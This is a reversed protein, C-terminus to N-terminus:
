LADVGFCYADNSNKPSFSYEGAPLAAEPLLGWSSAGERSVKLAVTLPVVKGTQPDLRTWRSDKKTELPYLKFVRPDLGNALRVVFMMKGTNKIRVPSRVGEIVWFERYLRNPSYGIGAGVQQYTANRRELAIFNGSADKFYVAGVGEPEPGYVTQPLQARSIPPSTSVVSAPAAPVAFGGAGPGFAVASVDSKSYTRPKDDTLFQIKDEDAGLWNGTVVAGNRLTLVDASVIALLAFFLAVFRRM